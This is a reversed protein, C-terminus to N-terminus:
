RIPIVRTISENRRPCRVGEAARPHGFTVVVRGMTRRRAMDSFADAAQEFRYVGWFVGVVSCGKLPEELKVPCSV